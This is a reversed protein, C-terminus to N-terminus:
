AAFLYHDTIETRKHGLDSSVMGKAKVDSFGQTRLNNVKDQAYSYRLGHTGTYKQGSLKVAEKFSKLYQNYPIYLGKGQSTAIKLKQHLLPDIKIIQHKGGKNVFEFKNNDKLQLPSIKTAATVRLGYDKQLQFSLAHTGHMHIGIAEPNSYARNVHKSGLAQAKAIARVEAIDKQTFLPDRKDKRWQPDTDKIKGISIRLKNFQSLYTSITNYKLGREIYDNVLSELVERSINHLDPRRDFHEKQHVLLSGTLRKFQDMSKLAHIFESVKQGKEGYYKSDKRNSRKSRGIGDVNNAAIQIQYKISATM